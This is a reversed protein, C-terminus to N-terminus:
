DKESDKLLNDVTKRIEKVSKDKKEELNITGDKEADPRTDADMKGFNSSRKYKDQFHAHKKQDEM